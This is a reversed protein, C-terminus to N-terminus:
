LEPEIEIKEPVTVVVLQLSLLLEGRRESKRDAHKEQRDNGSERVDYIL